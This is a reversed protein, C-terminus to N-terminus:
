LKGSWFTSLNNLLQEVAQAGIGFREHIISPSRFKVPAQGFIL